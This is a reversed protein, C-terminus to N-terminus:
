KTEGKRIAIACNMAGGCIGEYLMQGSQTLLPKRKASDADAAQAVCVQACREREAMARRDGYDRLQDNSFYDGWTPLYEREGRWFAWVMELQEPLAVDSDRLAKLEAALKDAERQYEDRSARLADREAYPDPTSPVVGDAYSKTIARITPYHQIVGLISEASHCSKQGHHNAWREVFVLDAKLTDREKVLAEIATQLEAKEENATELMDGNDFRGGVLAWASAFVQAQSMIQETNM